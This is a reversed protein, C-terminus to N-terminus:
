VFVEEVECVAEWSPVEYQAYKGIIENTEKSFRITCEYLGSHVELPILLFHWRDSFPNYIISRLTGIKTQIGTIRALRETGARFEGTRVKNKKKWTKTNHDYVTSTKVDSGDVLDQGIGVDHIAIGSTRSVAMESLQTGNIINDRILDEITPEGLPYAKEMFFRILRENIKANKALTHM